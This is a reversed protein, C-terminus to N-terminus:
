RGSGGPGLAEVCKAQDKLLAQLVLERHPDTARWKTRVHELNKEVERCHKKLQKLDWSRKAAKLRRQIWNGEEGADPQASAVAPQTEPVPTVVKREGADPQAPLAAWENAAAGAVVGADVVRVVPEPEPEPEDIEIPEEAAADAVAVMAVKKTAHRAPVMIDRVQKRDPEDLKRDESGRASLSFSRGAPVALKQGDYEAEVVGEEVAVGSTLGDRMVMFRTGVARVTLRGAVIELQRQPQFDATVAVTGEDLAVKVALPSLTELTARSAALVGLKSGDPLKLWTEGEKRTSIRTGAALKNGTSFAGQETESEITSLVSAEHASALAVPLPTPEVPQRPGAFVVLLVAATVAFGLVPKFFPADWLSRLWRVAGPRAMERAAAEMVKEDIAKWRADGLAPVAPVAFFPQSALVRKLSQACTDCSAMHERLERAEADGLEDRTLAFLRDLEVHEV